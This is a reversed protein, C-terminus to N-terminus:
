SESLELTELWFLKEHSHGELPQPDKLIGPKRKYKLPDPPDETEEWRLEKGARSQSYIPNLSVITTKRHKETGEKM